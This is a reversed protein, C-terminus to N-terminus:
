LNKLGLLGERLSAAMEADQKARQAASRLADDIGRLRAIVERQLEVRPLAFEFRAIHNWFLHKVKSGECMAEAHRRFSSAQLVRFLFEPEVQPSCHFRGIRQNLLSRDGEGALCVRGMFGDELSQATLNIVVDGADVIFGAATVEWAPDLYVTRGREWSLYGNQGLNGPRLLRIGSDSYEGGPFPRGNQMSCVEGVTAREGPGDTGGIAHDIAATRVASLASHVLQRSEALEAAALLASAIPKQESFSPLPFEYAAADSWNVFLNTSGRFHRRLHDQFGDSRVVAELFTQLLVEPDRTRLIFNTHASLGDFDPVAVKLYPGRTTCIVDGSRFITRIRSGFEADGVSNWTTIRRGESPIHKGIVYRTFGDTVPDKTALTWNIAVDGLKVLRWETRLEAMM